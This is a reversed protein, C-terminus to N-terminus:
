YSDLIISSLNMTVSIIYRTYEIAILKPQYKNRLISLCKEHIEPKVKLFTKAIKHIVNRLRPQVASKIKFTYGKMQMDISKYAGM